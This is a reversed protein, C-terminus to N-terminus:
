FSLLLSSLVTFSLDGMGYSYALTGTTAEVYLPGLVSGEHVGYLAIVYSTNPSLGSMWLSLADGSVSLNQREPGGASNAVEIVFSQFDLGEDITWSVNFSDWSVDSVSLSRIDAM